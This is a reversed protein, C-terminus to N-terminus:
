GPGKRYCGVYANALFGPARNEIRCNIAHAIAPFLRSFPYVVLKFDYFACGVQVFGRAAMSDDLKRPPLEHHIIRNSEPTKAGFIRKFWQYTTTLAQSNRMIFRNLSQRNPITLIAIGGPKLLRAFEDFTPNMDDLYELLGMGLLIEFQSDPYPVSDCTGVELHIRKSYPKGGFEKSISDLMSQAVDVGHYILGRNCLFEVMPGTGCGIDLVSQGERIHRELLEEVRARRAIFDHTLQTNQDTYFQAYSGDSGMRSFHEKVIREQTM